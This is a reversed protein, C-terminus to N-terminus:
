FLDWIVLFAATGLGMALIVTPITRTLSPWTKKFSVDLPYFIQAGWGDVLCSCYRCLYTVFFGFRFSVPLFRFTQKQYCQPCFFVHMGPLIEPFVKPWFVKVYLFVVSKVIFAMEIELTTAGLIWTRYLAMVNFLLGLELTWMFVKFLHKRLKKPSLTVRGESNVELCHFGALWCVFGLSYGMLFTILKSPKRKKKLQDM